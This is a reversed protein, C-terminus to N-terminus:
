CRGESEGKRQTKQWREGEWEMASGISMHYIWSNDMISRGLSEQGEDLWDICRFSIRWRRSRILNKPRIIETLTAGIKCAISEM